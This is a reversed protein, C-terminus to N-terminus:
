DFTNSREIFIEIQKEDSRYQNAKKEEDARALNNTIAAAALM